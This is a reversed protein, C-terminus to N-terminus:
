VQRDFLIGMMDEMKAALNLMEKSPIQRILKGTDKNIVKIVTKGTEEHVSFQLGVQHLLDLNEKLAKLAIDSTQKKAPPPGKVPRAHEDKNSTIVNAPLPNQLIATNMAEISM